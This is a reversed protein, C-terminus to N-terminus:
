EGCKHLEIELQRESNSTAVGVQAELGRFILIKWEGGLVDVILTDSNGMCEALDM